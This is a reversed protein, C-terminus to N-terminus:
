RENLESWLFQTVHRGSDDHPATHSVGQLCFKVVCAPCLKFCAQTKLYTPFISREGCVQGENKIVSERIALFSKKGM